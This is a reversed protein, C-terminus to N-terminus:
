ADGRARVREAVYDVMRNPSRVRRCDATRNELATALLLELNTCDSRETAHHFMSRVGVCDCKCGKLIDRLDLFITSAQSRLLTQPRAPVAEAGSVDM